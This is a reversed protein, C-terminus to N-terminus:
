LLSMQETHLTQPDLTGLDYGGYLGRGPVHRTGQPKRTTRTPGARLEWDTPLRGDLEARMKDEWRKNATPDSGNFPRPPLIPLDRWEPHSHDYADEVAANESDRSTTHVRGCTCAALYDLHPHTPRLDRSLIVPQCGPAEPTKNDFTWLHWTAQMAVRDSELGTAQWQQYARDAADLAETLNAPLTM